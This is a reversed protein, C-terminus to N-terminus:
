DQNMYINDENTYNVYDILRKLFFYWETVTTKAEVSGVLFFWIPRGGNRPQFFDILFSYFRSENSQNSPIMRNWETSLVWKRQHDIQGNVFSTRGAVWWRSYWAVCCCRVIGFWVHHWIRNRKTKIEVFNWSSNLCYFFSLSLVIKRNYQTSYMIWKISEDVTNM